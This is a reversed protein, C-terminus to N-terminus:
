IKELGYNRLLTRVRSRAPKQRGKGSNELSIVIWRKSILSKCKKNTLM